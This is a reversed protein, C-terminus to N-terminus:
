RDGSGFLKMLDFKNNVNLKSYLNTVHSSVTKESINIEDGIEKYSKGQLLCQVVDMERTTLSYKECQEEFTAEVPLSEVNFSRSTRTVDKVFAIKQNENNTLHAKIKLSLEEMHFPKPLYDVAGLAYGNVKTELDAKASLFLFPTYQHEPLKRLEGLFTIGDMEDMMIDSIILDAVPIAKLKELAQKGNEAPFVNYALKLDECIMHLLERNDEVVLIIPKKPNFETEFM